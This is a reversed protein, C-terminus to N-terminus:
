SQSEQWLAHLERTSLTSDRHTSAYDDLWDAFSQAVKEDSRWDRPLFGGKSLWSDLANFAEVLREAADSESGLSGAEDYDQAAERANALAQDPDM